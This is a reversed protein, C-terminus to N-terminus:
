ERNSNVADDVAISVMKSVGAEQMTVGYLVSANMMTGKRHTIVIFQTDTDFRRLFQAYRAVNADDLAAEAEDLIVFPVPRVRLTAFLLAIATLAREGGSLLRMNQQKKGPPQATIEIGTELLNDPATLELDAQGGGFVQPFIQQFATRLQNFAAKFKTVVEGDMENITATLHDCAAQLDAQQHTLFQYRQDVREFENIAGLNVTGLEDIGRKLLPLQRNIVTLDTAHEAAAAAEYTVGYKTRLTELHHDMLEECTALATQRRHLEDRADAALEQARTLQQEGATVQDHLQQRTKKAEDVQATAAVLRKRLAAVKQELAPATDPSVPPNVRTLEEKRERIRKTVTALRQKADALRAQQATLAAQKATATTKAATYEASQKQQAVTSAQQKATLAKVQQKAQHLATTTTAMEKKLEKIRCATAAETEQYKTEATVTQQWRAVAREANAVAQTQTALTARLHEIDQTLRTVQQRQKEVQAHTEKIIQNLTQLRTQMTKVQTALEDQQQRQALIGPRKHQLAGGTMAGGASILDGALTVVRVRRKLANSIRTAAALDSAVVTTGLLHSVVRANERTSTVLNAAVGQFGEIQAAQAQQDPTLQRSTISQRPLFTARGSRHARLYKIAQQAASQNTVVINQLQGGLVTEIAVAYQSPVTLVDAVTGIVGDLRAKMVVQVGQYYGNYNAAMGKLTEMRTTAQQYIRDAQQARQRLQREKDAAAQLQPTLEQQRTTMEELRQKTQQVARQAAALQKKAGKLNKHAAVRQATPQGNEQSQRTQLDTIRANAVSRATTLETVRAQAKQLAAALHDGSHKAPTLAAVRETATKYEKQLQKVVQQLQKVQAEQQTQEKKLRALEKKGTAVREQRFTADQQQVRQESVLHEHQQTLRVVNEQLQDLTREQKQLTARVEAVAQQRERRDNGTKAALESAQEVRAALQARRRKNEELEVVLKSQYLYDYQKKQHQYDRAISAQEKLPERQAKLETIIDVVRTLHEQTGALEQQAQKKEQKYKLVGALEEVIVRREEPKSNFIKEVRGQSIISFSEKGLGTDLFLDVIDRLRVQRGNLWFESTGDRYLRRIVEVTAPQQPLLHDSNDFTLVVEARNLPARVSTGAFIVDAMKGGRLSKASQEGLGWRIAETINSKGSGNPGVIGTVGPQFDIVTKDAFSKFGTLTLSKLKM